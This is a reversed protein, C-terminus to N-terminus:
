LPTNYTDKMWATRLISVRFTLRKQLYKWHNFNSYDILNTMNLLSKAISSFPAVLFCWTGDNPCGATQAQRRGLGLISTRWGAWVTPLIISPHFCTLIIQHLLIIQYIIQIPIIVIHQYFRRVIQSRFIPLRNSQSRMRYRNAFCQPWPRQISQLITITTQSTLPMPGDALEGFSIWANAAM